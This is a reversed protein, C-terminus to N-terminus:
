VVFSYIVFSFLNERKKASERILTIKIRIKLM